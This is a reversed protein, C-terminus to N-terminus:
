LLKDQRLQRVATVWEVDGHLFHYFLYVLPITAAHWVAHADVLMLLPPFDLVELLLAVYMLVLFRYLRWRHPHRVAQCYLAWAATNALGLALCFKMNWGYDFKVALMYHLHWGVLALVLCSAGAAPAKRDPWLARGIVCILSLGMVLNASCYDLRETLWTDRFPTIPLSPIHPIM